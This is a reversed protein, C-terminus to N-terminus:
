SKAAKRKTTSKLAAAYGTQYGQMRIKVIVDAPIGPYLAEWRALSEQVRQAGRIAGGRRGAETARPDGHAFGRKM